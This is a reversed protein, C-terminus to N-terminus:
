KELDNPIYKGTFGFNEYPYRILEESSFRFVPFPFSLRHYSLTARLRVSPSSTSSIHHYCAPYQINCPSQGIPPLSSLRRSWILTQLISGLRTDRGTQCKLVPKQTVGPGTTNKTLLLLLTLESVDLVFAYTFLGGFSHPEAEELTHPKELPEVSEGVAPLAPATSGDVRTETGDKFEAVSASWDYLPSNRPRTNLAFQPSCTFSDSLRYERLRPDRARTVHM